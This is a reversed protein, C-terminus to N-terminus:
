IFFLGLTFMLFFFVPKNLFAIERFSNGLQLLAFMFVHQLRMQRFIPSTNARQMVTIKRLQRLSQNDGFIKTLFM